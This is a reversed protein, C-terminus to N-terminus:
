EPAVGMESIQDGPTLTVCAASAGLLCLLVVTSLPKSM